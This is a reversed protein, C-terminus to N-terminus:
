AACAVMRELVDRTKNQATWTHVIQAARKKAVREVIKPTERNRPCWRKAIDGMGRFPERLLLLLLLSCLFIKTSVPIFISDFPSEVLTTRLFYDAVLSLIIVFIPAHQKKHCLRPANIYVCIYISVYKKQYIIVNIKSLNCFQYQLYKLLWEVQIKVFAEKLHRRAHAISAAMMAPYM